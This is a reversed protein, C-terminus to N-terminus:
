SPAPDLFKSVSNRSGFIARRLFELLDLERAVARDTWVSIQCSSIIAKSWAVPPTGDQRPSFTHHVLEPSTLSFLHRARPQLMHGFYSVLCGEIGM